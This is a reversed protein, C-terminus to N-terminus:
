RGKKSREKQKDFFNELTEGTEEKIFRGDMSFVSYSEEDYLYASLVTGSKYWFCDEKPLCIMEERGPIKVLYGAKGDDSIIMRKNVTIRTHKHSQGTKKGASANEQRKKYNENRLATRPSPM